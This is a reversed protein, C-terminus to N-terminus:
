KEVIGLREAPLNHLLEEPILNTLTTQLFFFLSFFHFNAM